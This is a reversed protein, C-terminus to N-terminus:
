GESRRDSALRLGKFGQGDLGKALGEFVRRFSARARSLLSEAAKPGLGLRQGIERVALGELYKWELARGYSPPLHDLALHVLRVAEKRRLDSDPSDATALNELLYEIRATDEVWELRKPQRGERRFFASVQYRCIGCLWTFLTSEGRFSDLKEIAKMLTEQVVEQAASEDRDMRSLAFRYLGQFYDAFFREFADEDGRLLQRVLAQENQSPM